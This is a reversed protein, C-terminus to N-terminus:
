RGFRALMAASRATGWRAPKLGRGHRVEIGMGPSLMVGHRGRLHTVSVRGEVVLIATKEASVDIAYITGRMSAIAHPTRIQFNKVNGPKLEFLAGGRELNLETPMVGSSGTQGLGLRAAAEAEITLGGPCEFVTREPNTAQRPTCGPIAQAMAPAVPVVSMFLFAALITKSRPDNLM